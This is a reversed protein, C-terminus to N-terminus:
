QSACHLTGGDMVMEFCDIPVIRMGPFYRSIM